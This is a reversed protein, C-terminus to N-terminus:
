LLLICHHGFSSIYHIMSHWKDSTEHDPHFSFTGRIYGYFYLFITSLFTTIIFFLLIWESFHTTLNDIDYFYTPYSVTNPNNDYISPTYMKKCILCFGSFVVLYLIIKDILFAFYVMKNGFDSHIQTDDVLHIGTYWRTGHLFLSSMCLSGWLGSYIYEGYLYAGICNTM